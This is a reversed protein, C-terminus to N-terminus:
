DKKLKKYKRYENIIYRSRKDKDMGNLANVITMHFASHKALLKEAKKALFKDYLKNYPLSVFYDIIDLVVEKLFLLVFIALGFGFGFVFGDVFSM